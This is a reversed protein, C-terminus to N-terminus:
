KPSKDPEIRRVKIKLLVFPLTNIVIIQCTNHFITDEKSINTRADIILAMIM